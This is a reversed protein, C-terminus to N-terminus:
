NVPCPPPAPRAYAFAPDCMQLRRPIDTITRDPLVAWEFVTSGHSDVVKAYLYAHRSPDLALLLRELRHRVYEAPETRTALVVEASGPTPWIKIRVVTAGSNRAASDVQGRLQEQGKATLGCACGWDASEMGSRWKQETDDVPVKLHALSGQNGNAGRSTVGTTGPGGSPRLIFFAACAGALLVLASTVVRRRRMRLKAEAILPDFGPALASM